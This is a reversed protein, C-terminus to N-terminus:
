KGYITYRKDTFPLDTTQMIGAGNLGGETPENAAVDSHGTCAMVVAWPPPLEGDGFRGVGHSGIAAAPDQIQRQPDTALHSL